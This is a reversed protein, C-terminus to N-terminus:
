KCKTSLPTFVENGWGGSIDVLMTGMYHTGMDGKANYHFYILNESLYTDIERYKFTEDSPSASTATGKIQDTEWVVEGDKIHVVFHVKVDLLLIDVEEGDCYIPTIASYTDWGQYTRNESQASLQIMAAGIFLCIIVSLASKRKM